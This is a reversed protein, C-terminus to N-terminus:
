FRIHCNPAHDMIMGVSQMLAYMSTSGVFKFGLRRLEASMADSEPSTILWQFNDQSTQNNEPAFRWLTEKLDLGLDEVLRANHITALIKARNRIIREDQMLRDVDNPGYAAVLATQFNDFASRFGERRKLITLWSLGAQFGELAVAEFLDRQGTARRGWEKDHYDIYVQDDTVWRCREVGDPHVRTLSM